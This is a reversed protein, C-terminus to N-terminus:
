HLARIVTFMVLNADLITLSGVAISGFRVIKTGRTSVAKYLAIDGEVSVHFRM